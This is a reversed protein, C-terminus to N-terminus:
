KTLGTIGLILGTPDCGSAADNWWACEQKKCPSFYESTRGHTETITMKRLPCLLLTKNPKM